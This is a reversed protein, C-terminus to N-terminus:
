KLVCQMLVGSFRPIHKPFGDRIASLNGELLCVNITIVEEVSLTDLFGEWHGVSILGERSIILSHM